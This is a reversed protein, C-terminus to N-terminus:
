LYCSDVLGNSVEGVLLESFIDNCLKLYPYSMFRDYGWVKSMAIALFAELWTMLDQYEQETM